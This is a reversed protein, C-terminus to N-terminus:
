ARQAVPNGSVLKVRLTETRLQVDHGLKRAEDWREMATIAEIKRLMMELDCENIFSCRGYLLHTFYTARGSDEKTLADALKLLEAKFELFYLSLEDEFSAGKKVALLRLNALPDRPIPRSEPSKESTVSAKLARRLRDLTIPKGLFADMGAALCAARKEATNFATTAFITAKSSAGSTARIQKAIAPGDLGQVSYDIFIVDFEQSKAFSLFEQADATARVKLGLSELMSALAIRNYEADDILLAHRLSRPLPAPPLASTHNEHDPVPFLASFYFCSGKGAESKFWVRGNMKEALTKCLFLGLRTGPM